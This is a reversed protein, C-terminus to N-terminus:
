VVRGPCGAALAGAGPVGAAVGGAGVACPGAVLACGGEEYTSKTCSFKRCKRWNKASARTSRGNEEPRMADSSKQPGHAGQSTRLTDRMPPLTHWGPGDCSEEDVFAEAEDAIFSSDLVEEM